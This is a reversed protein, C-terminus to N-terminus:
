FEVNAYVNWTADVTINFGTSGYDFFVGSFVTSYGKKLPVNNYEKSEIVNNLADLGSLKVSVNSVDATLEDAPLFTFASINIANASRHKDTIDLAVVREVSTSAFGTVANLNNSVGEFTLQLKQAEDPIHGTLAFRVRAVAHTMPVDITTTNKGVVIDSSHIYANPFGTFAVDTPDDLDPHATDSHGLVVLRYNGYKVNELSVVGFTASASNQDVEMYKTYSGDDGVKYLVLELMTFAESLAARTPQQTVTLGSVNFVLNTYGDMESVTKNESIEDNGACSVALAMLAIALVRLVNMKM